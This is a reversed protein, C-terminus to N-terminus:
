VRVVVRFRDKRFTTFDSRIILANSMDEKLWSEVGTVVKPNYM